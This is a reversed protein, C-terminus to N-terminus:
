MQALPRHNPRPWARRASCPHTPLLGCASPACRLSPHARETPATHGATLAEGRGGAQATAPAAPAPSRAVAGQQGPQQMASQAASSDHPMREGAATRGEMAASGSAPGGPQELVALPRAAAALTHGHQGDEAGRGATEPLGEPWLAQVWGHLESWLRLTQLQRGRSSGGWARLRGGALPPLPSGAKRAESDRGAWKHSCAPLKLRSLLVFCLVFCHWTHWPRATSFPLLLM